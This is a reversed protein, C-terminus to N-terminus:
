LRRESQCYLPRVEDAFPQAASVITRVDRLMQERRAATLKGVSLAVQGLASVIRKRLKWGDVVGTLPANVISSTASGVVRDIFFPASFWAFFGVILIVLVTSRAVSLIDGVVSLRHAPSAARIPGPLTDLLDFEIMDAFLKRKGNNLNEMSEAVSGGSAVLNLEEIGVVFRAGKQRVIVDYEISMLDDLNSTDAM